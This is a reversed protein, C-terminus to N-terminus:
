GKKHKIKGMLIGLQDKLRDFVSPGKVTLKTEATKDSLMSTVKVAYAGVPIPPQKVVVIEKFKENFEIDARLLEMAKTLKSVEAKFTGDPKIPGEAV